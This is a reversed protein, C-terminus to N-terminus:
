QTKTYRIKTLSYIVGFCINQPFINQPFKNKRIAAFILFRVRCVLSLLWTISTKMKWTPTVILQDHPQRHGSQNENFKPRCIVHGNDFYHHTVQTMWSTLMVGSWKLGFSIVRLHKNCKPCLTIVNLVEPDNIVNLGEADTCVCRFATPKDLLM